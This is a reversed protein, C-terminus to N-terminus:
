TYLIDLFPYPYSCSIIIIIIRAKKKLFFIHIDYVAPHKIAIEIARGKSKMKM